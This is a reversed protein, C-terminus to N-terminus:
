GEWSPRAAIPEATGKPECDGTRCVYGAETKRCAQPSRRQASTNQVVIISGDEDDPEVANDFRCRELPCTLCSPYTGDPCGTDPFRQAFDFGLADLDPLRNRQM